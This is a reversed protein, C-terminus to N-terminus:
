PRAKRIRQICASLLLIVLVALLMVTAGASALGINARQFLNDVVFKAPLDTSFGPGGGTMAVVLDYSKVVNMALLVVCVLLVPTLMPLIVRRYMRVKPIGDVRGARWIESDISGLGAYVIAMVLGSSQWVGAIVLTFIAKEPSSLWDFVFGEFGLSRVFAQLGVTPNLFWQWALGTVIFSLAIPYLFLSQLFNRGRVGQDVAIALAVGFVLCGGVYLAGFIFMNAFATHWRPESWLRIYQDFGAFEYKPLIGSTTFSM